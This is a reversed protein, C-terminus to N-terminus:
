LEGKESFKKYGININLLWITLFKYAIDTGFWRIKKVTFFYKFNESLALFIEGGQNVFTIFKQGFKESKQVFKLRM